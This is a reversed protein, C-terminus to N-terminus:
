WGVECWPMALRLEDGRPDDYRLGWITLKELETLQKLHRLGGDALLDREVHLERLAPCKVLAALGRGTIKYPFDPDTRNLRLTRLRSFGALQKLHEDNLDTSNGFNLEIVKEGEEGTYTVTADLHICLACLRRKERRQQIEIGIWGSLVGLL